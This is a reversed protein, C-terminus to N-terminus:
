NGSYSLAMPPQAGDGIATYQFQASVWSAGTTISTSNTSCVIIPLLITGLGSKSSGTSSSPLVEIKLGKQNHFSKPDFSNLGSTLLKFVTMSCEATMSGLAVYDPALPTPSKDPNKYANGPGCCKLMELTSSYSASWDMVNSIPSYGNGTSSKAYLSGNWYPYLDNYGMPLTGESTGVKYLSNASNWQSTDIEGTLVKNTDGNVYSQFNFDGTMNADQSNSFSLSSCWGYGRFGNKGTPYIQILTGEPKGRESFAFKELATFIGGKAYEVSVSGEIRIYNNSYAVQEAANYYGAGWVGSSFIPQHNQSFSGGTALLITAGSVNDGSVDGGLAAM